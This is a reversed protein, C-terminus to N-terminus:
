QLYHLTPAIGDQSVPVGLSKLNNWTSTSDSRFSVIQGSTNRFTIFLSIQLRPPEQM